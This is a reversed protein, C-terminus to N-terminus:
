NHDEMDLDDVEVKTGLAAKGEKIMIELQENLRRLSADEQRERRRMQAVHRQTEASAPSQPTRPSLPHAKAPTSPLYSRKGPRPIMSPRRHTRFPSTNKRPIRRTPTSQSVADVFIDRDDNPVVVWNRQIEDDPFQGPVPIHTNRNSNTTFVDDKETHSSRVPTEDLQSSTAGSDLSYGRGGGAYFGRFAGSWCFEWVKGVVSIVARGWSVPQTTQLPSNELSAYPTSSFISDRRSRKRSIAGTESSVLPDVSDDVIRPLPNERYRNQRYNFGASAELKGDHWTRSDEAFHHHHNNALPTTGPLDCQSECFPRKEATEHRARKRSYSISRYLSSSASPTQPVQFLQSRADALDLKPPAPSDLFFSGPMSDPMKGRSAQSYFYPISSISFSCSVSFFLLM